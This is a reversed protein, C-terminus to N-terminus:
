TRKKQLNKIAVETIVYVMYLLATLLLVILTKTIDRNSM